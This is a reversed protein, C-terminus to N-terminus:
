KLDRVVDKAVRYLDEMTNMSTIQNKYYGSHAVGRLYWAFHKRAELCAVHEGHDQEAMRFQELAVDIRDKLEPRGPYEVGDLTFKGDAIRNGVRGILAGMYGVRPIYGNVDRYGLLVSEIKGNRDPVNIARLIGGYNTIEVSAGRKNTLIYLDAEKGCPLTGFSKKVISM